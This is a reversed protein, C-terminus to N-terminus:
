ENTQEEEYDKFRNPINARIACFSSGRIIEYPSDKKPEAWISHLWMQEEYDKKFNKYSVVSFIDNKDMVRKKKDM